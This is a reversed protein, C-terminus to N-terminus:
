ALAARMFDIFVRVKASLHRNELYVAFVGLREPWYRELVPQLTGDSLDNKVVYEPSLLVGGDKLAFRRAAGASNSKLRGSVEIKQTGNQDMFPWNNGLRFNADLICAHDRLDEPKQPIGNHALYKPSACYILRTDTLKRAIFSSDELHGIRIAVDVGEDLLNVYRDSLQLDIQVKPYKLGFDAVVDALYHEGYTSPAAIILTGQPARHNQRVAAALEDFDDLLQTCKRLYGAGTETLRVSRTSRNFLQVGLHDELARVYKSVLQPAMGLRQAAGTFSGTEAVAVYARMLDIRDM